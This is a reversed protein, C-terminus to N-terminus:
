LQEKIQIIQLRYAPSAVATVNLACLRQTVVARNSVVTPRGIWLMRTDRLTSHSSSCFHFLPSFLLERKTFVLHVATITVQSTMVILFLFNNLWQMTDMLPM